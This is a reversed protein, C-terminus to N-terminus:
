PKRTLALARAYVDRRPLGTLKAVEDASDRVSMTTLADQLAQDLDIEEGPRPEQAGALVIVIEGKTEREAYHASLESLTGRRFEEHLKTIERAVVAPRDGFVKNMDTLTDAVRHPSEFFVLSCTLPKLQELAKQRASTKNPLFGGFYFQDTPLGAGMLAAMPASPGPIPTVAIGHEACAAVLKFGPDSILPTGADSVLAITEGAALRELIRPRVADANHDHYAMMPTAIAFRHLLGGTVRTDECAIVTASKLTEIARPSLDGLNGIPTAVM